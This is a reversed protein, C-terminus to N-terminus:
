MMASLVRMFSIQVFLDCPQFSRSISLHRSHFLDLPCILSPESLEVSGHSLQQLVEIGDDEWSATFEV